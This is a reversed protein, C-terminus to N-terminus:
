AAEEMSPAGFSVLAAEPKNYRLEGLNDLLLKNFGQVFCMRFFTAGWQLFSM